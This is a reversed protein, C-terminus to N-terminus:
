QNSRLKNKGQHTCFCPIWNKWPGEFFQVYNVCLDYSAQPQEQMMPNLLLCPLWGVFTLTGSVNILVALLLKGMAMTQLM